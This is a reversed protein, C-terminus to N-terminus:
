MKALNAKARDLWWAKDTMTWSQGYIVYGSKSTKTMTVNSYLMSYMDKKIEAPAGEVPWEDNAIMQALGMAHREIKTTFVIKSRDHAPWNNLEVTYVSGPEIEEKLLM